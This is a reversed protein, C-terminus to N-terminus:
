NREHTWLLDLASASSSVAELFLNRKLRYRMTLSNTNEFVSIGYKIYLDPNIYGSLQVEAGEEGEAAAMQFHKIGLKDAVGGVFSDGSAAGLSLAASSLLVNPDSTGNKPAQGTLLYHLKTQDPLLPQSFLTLEPENAPGEARVGVIVPDIIGNRTAEIHITPNELSGVFILSSNRLTLNQGYAKYSGEDLNIIGNGRWLQQPSYSINLNGKILSELGFGRFRVDSGFEVDIDSRLLAINDEAKLENIIIADNSVSASGKPLSKLQIFATPVKLTGSIYIDNNNLRVDINPSIWVESRPFPSYLLEDAKINLALSPNTEISDLSGKIQVPSKDALFNGTFVIKNNTLFINAQGSHLPWPLSQDKFAVSNVKAVGTLLPAKISGALTLESDLTGEIFEIEPYFTMLSTLQFDEFNIKGKLNKSDQISFESNAKGMKDLNISTSVNINKPTGSLAFDVHKIDITQVQSRFRWRVQGNTSAAKATLEQLEGSRFLASASGSIQGELDIHDPAWRSFWNWPINAVTTTIAQEEATLEVGDPLCAKSSETAICFPTADVKKQAIDLHISFPSELEFEPLEFSDTPTLTLSNVFIDYLKPNIVKTNGTSVLSGLKENALATAWSFSNIDGQATLNLHRFYQGSIHLNKAVGSVKQASGELGEFKLSVTDIREKEFVLKNATLHGNFKSAIGNLSVELTGTVNGRLDTYLTEIKKIDLKLRYKDKANSSIDISNDQDSITFSPITLGTTDSWAINGYGRLQLNEYETSASIIEVLYNENEIAEVLNLSFEGSLAHTENQINFESFTLLKSDMAIHTDVIASDKFYPLDLNAIVHGELDDLTGTLTASANELVVREDGEGFILPALTEATANWKLTDALLNTKLKISASYPQQLIINAELKTLSGSTEAKLLLNNAPSSVSLSYAPFYPSKLTISGKGKILYDEYSFQTKTSNVKRLHWDIKSKINVLTTTTGAQQIDLRAIDVSKVEIPVPTSVTPLEINPHIPPNSPDREGVSIMLEDISVQHGCIKFYILCATKFKAKTNHLTVTDQGDSWRITDIAIGHKVTGSVGELSLEPMYDQLQNSAFTLAHTSNLAWYSLGVVFANVITIIVLVIISTYYARRKSM